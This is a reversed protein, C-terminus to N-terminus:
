HSVGAANLVVVGGIILLLGAIKFVSLAENLWLVGIVAVLATGVGSWIAYTTSLQFYRLTQSLLYFSAGYGIVVIVVPGPRTFGHSFRLAVTGLVESLIAGLLLVWAM